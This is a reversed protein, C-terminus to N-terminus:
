ILEKDAVKLRFNNERVNSTKSSSSSSHSETPSIPFSMEDDSAFDESQIM